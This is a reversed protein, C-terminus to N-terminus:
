SVDRLMRRFGIACVFAVLSVLSFGFTVPSLSESIGQTVVRAALMPTFDDRGLQHSVFTFVKALNKALGALSIFATAMSMGAIFALREFRPRWAFLCAAALAVLGFGVVAYMAFGGAEFLELM